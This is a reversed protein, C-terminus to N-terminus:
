PLLNLFVAAQQHDSLVAIIIVIMLILHGDFGRFFLIMFQYSPNDTPGKGVVYKFWLGFFFM